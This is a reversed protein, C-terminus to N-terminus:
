APPRDRLNRLRAFAREDNSSGGEPLKMDPLEGLVAGLDPRALLLDALKDSVAAPPYLGARGYFKPIWSGWSVDNSEDCLRVAALAAREVQEGELRGGQALRDEFLGTARQLMRDADALRSLGLAKSVAELLLQVSWSHQSENGFSGSLTDEDTQESAGCHPCSPTERAFPLKCHACLRLVGTTRRPSHSVVKPEVRTFVLDQTGIRIRDGDRLVASSSVALGNVRVGNRSGLDLVRVEDGDVVIQAHRRSVLPDEITVECDESRGLTTVGVRLDVEQLHFRLRFRSV